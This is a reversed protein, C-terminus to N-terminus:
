PYYIMLFLCMYMWFLYPSTWVPASGEDEDGEHQILIPTENSITHVNKM